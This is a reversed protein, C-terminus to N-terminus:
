NAFGGLMMIVIWGLIMAGNLSIAVIGPSIYVDRERISIIGCVIGIINLFVSFLGVGGFGRDVSGASRYSAFIVATVAIACIVGIMIGMISMFSYHRTTFMFSKKKRIKVPKGM